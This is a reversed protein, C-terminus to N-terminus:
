SPRVKKELCDLFQRVPNNRYHFLVIYLKLISNKIIGSQVIDIQTQSPSLSKIQIERLGSIPGAGLVQETVLKTKPIFEKVSFEVPLISGHQVWISNREPGVLKEEMLSIYSVWSPYKSFDSVLQWVSEIPADVVRSEKITYNKRTLMSILLM